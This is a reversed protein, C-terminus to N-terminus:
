VFMLPIVRNKIVQDKHIFSCIGKCLQIYSEFPLEVDTHFVPGYKFHLSSNCILIWDHGRHYHEEKYKLNQVNVSQVGNSLSIVLKNM